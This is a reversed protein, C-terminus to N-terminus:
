KKIYKLAGTPCTNITNEIHNASNENPKIWPKRGVEFVEPDGHTCKGAHKCTEKSYFIDINEGDYKKYDTGELIKEDKIENTGM